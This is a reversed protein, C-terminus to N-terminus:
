LKEEYRKEPDDVENETPSGSPLVFRGPWFPVYIVVAIFM